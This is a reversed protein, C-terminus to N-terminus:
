HFLRALSAPRVRHRCLCCSVFVRMQIRVGNCDATHLLTPISPDVVTGQVRSTCLPRRNSTSYKFLILRAALAASMLALVPLSGLLTLHTSVRFFLSISLLLNTGFSNRLGDFTSPIVFKDAVGRSFSTVSLKDSTSQEISDRQM